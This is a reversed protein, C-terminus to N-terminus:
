LSKNENFAFYKYVHILPMSDHKNLPSILLPALNILLSHLTKMLSTFIQIIVFKLILV